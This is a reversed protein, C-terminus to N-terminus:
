SISSNKLKQAKQLQTAMQGGFSPTHMFDGTFLIEFPNGSKIKSYLNDFNSLFAQFEPSAHNFSPTRYLVTFVFKRGFKLEVVISEDFSLDNRIIVPLYNKYFLGM